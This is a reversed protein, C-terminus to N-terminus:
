KFLDRRTWAIAGILMLLNIGPIVSKVILGVDFKRDISLRIVKPLSAIKLEMIIFTLLYIVLCCILYIKIM